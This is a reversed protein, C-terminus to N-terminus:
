AAKAAPKQQQALQQLVSRLLSSDQALGFRIQTEIYLKPDRVVDPHAACYEDFTRRAKGIVENEKRVKAAKATRELEAIGRRFVHAAFEVRSLGDDDQSLLKGFADMVSPSVEIALKGDNDM